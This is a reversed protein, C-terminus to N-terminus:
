SEIRHRVTYAVYKVKQSVTGSRHPHYTYSTYLSVTMKQHGTGYSFLRGAGCIILFSSIM